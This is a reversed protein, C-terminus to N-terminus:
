LSLLLLCIKWVRKDWLVYDAQM